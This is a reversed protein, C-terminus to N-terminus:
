GSDFSAMRGGFINGDEHRGGIGRKYLLKGYDDFCKLRV